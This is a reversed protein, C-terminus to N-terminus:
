CSALRMGGQDPKHKFKTWKSAHNPAVSQHPQVMGGIVVGLVWM